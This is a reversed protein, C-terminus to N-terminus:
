GAARLETGIWHLRSNCDGEFFKVVDDRWSTEAEYKASDRCRGSWSKGAWGCHCALEAKSCASLKSALAVVEAADEM